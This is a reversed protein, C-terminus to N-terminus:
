AMINSGAQLVFHSVTFPFQYPPDWLALKPGDHVVGGGALEYPFEIFPTRNPRIYHLVIDGGGITNVLDYHIESFQSRLSHVVSVMATAQEATIGPKFTALAKQAAAASASFREWANIDELLGLLFKKFELTNNSM